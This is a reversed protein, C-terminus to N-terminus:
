LLIIGGRGDGAGYALAPSLMNVRDPGLRAARLAQLITWGDTGARQSRDTPNKVKFPLLNLLLVANIFRIASLTLHLNSSATTVPLLAFPILFLALTVLPGAAAVGLVTRPTCPEGDGGWEVCGGLAIVVHNVTQGARRAAIAHGAEHLVLGLVTAVPLLLLITLYFQSGFHLGPILLSFLLPPLLLPVFMAPLLLASLRVYIPIGAISGLRRGKPQRVPGHHWVAKRWYPFPQHM